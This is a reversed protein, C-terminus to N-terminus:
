KQAQWREAYALLARILEPDEKMCGFAQNCASCLLARIKGSEHCHDVALNKVQGSRKLIATEPKGCIACLGDQKDFLAQYEEISIGYTRKLGNRRYTKPNRKHKYGPRQRYVRAAKTNCAKCRPRKGQTKSNPPAKALRRSGLDPFENLSKVEKCKICRKYGEPLQEKPKRYAKKYCEKCPSILKGQSEYFYETTAPHWNQGEPCRPCRKLPPQSVIPKM